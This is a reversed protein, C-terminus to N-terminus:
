SGSCCPEASVEVPEGRVLPADADKFVFQGVSFGAIAAAFLGTHYSMVALMVLYGLAMSVGHLASVWIDLSLTPSKMLARYRQRIAPVPGRSPMMWERDGDSIFLLYVTWTAWKLM